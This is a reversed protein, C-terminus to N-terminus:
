ERLLICYIDGYMLIYLNVKNKNLLQLTNGQQRCNLNDGLSGQHSLQYLIQRYYPIGQNSGWTPFIGQLLSHNGVGTNQGPSNWPSYLGHLRLSDLLVSRSESESLNDGNNKTNCTSTHPVDKYM